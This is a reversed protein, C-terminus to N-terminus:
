PCFCGKKAKIKVEGQYPCYANLLVFAGHDTVLLRGESNLGRFEAAKLNMEALSAAADAVNMLLYYPSVNCLIVFYSLHRVMMKFGKVLVLQVGNKAYM